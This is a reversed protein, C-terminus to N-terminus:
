QCSMRSIIASSIQPTRSRARPVVGVGMGGARRSIRSMMTPVSGRNTTSGTLSKMSPSPSLM